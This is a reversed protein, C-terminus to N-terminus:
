FEKLGQNCNFVFLGLRYWMRCVKLRDDFVGIVTHIDKGVVDQLPPLKIVTCAYNSSDSRVELKM